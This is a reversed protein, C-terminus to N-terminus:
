FRARLRVKEGSRYVLVDIDVGKPAGEAIGAKEAVPELCDADRLLTRM